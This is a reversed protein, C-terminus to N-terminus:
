DSNIRKKVSSIGGHYKNIATILYSKGMKNLERYTPFKGDNQKIAENLDAELNNWSELCSPEKHAPEYGLKKRVSSVGGHHKSIAKQVKPELGNHTPFRGTREIVRKLEKEVNEWKTWYGQPKTITM